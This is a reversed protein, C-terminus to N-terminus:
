VAFGFPRSIDDISVPVGNQSAPIRKSWLDVHRALPPPHLQKSTALPVICQTPCEMAFGTCFSLWQSGDKNTQTAGTKSAYRCVFFVCPAAQV